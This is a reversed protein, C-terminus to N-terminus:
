FEVILLSRKPLMLNGKLCVSEETVAWITTEILYSTYERDLFILKVKVHDNNGLSLANKLDKDRKKVELPTPLVEFKPFRMHNIEEKNIQIPLSM